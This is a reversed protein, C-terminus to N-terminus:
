VHIFCVQIFDFRVQCSSFKNIIHNTLLLLSVCAFQLKKFNNLQFKFKKLIIDPM